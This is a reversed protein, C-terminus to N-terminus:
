ARRASPAPRACARRPRRSVDANIDALVLRAGERALARALALGLGSGAGTIVATKGAFSEM